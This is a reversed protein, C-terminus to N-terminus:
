NKEEYAAAQTFILKITDTNFKPKRDYTYLGNKEQEVDTLQTYCLGFIRNNDLIAMTLGSLRSLFEEESQPANGYGWGGEAAWAIGGYESVFTYSGYKNVHPCVIAGNKLGDLRARFSEPDQDYDHTDSIDGHGTHFWGSTDIVPRTEDLKSTLDATFAVLKKEDDHSTENFPCWGVIAPHNFDRELTDTWEELFDAWAAPVSEDLGWNPYEGWVMYGLRDCHYLFREEFIKQHLRAGNFGMDMSLKIDNELASDDPATYIGDPYFGQDLVLRQFVRKGNVTMMGNRCEVNRMGFYSGVTDDKMTLTLDYLAGDGPQWLHLEDPKLLLDCKGGYVCGQAAGTYRGDFSCEANLVTKDPADCLAQILLAGQSVLPTYKASKIYNQPTFELWVTQWIGTTRTYMCGYSEPRDSQKGSAQLPSRTDDNVLVRISNVGVTLQRTIEFAFSSYGGRHKGACVENILVEAEYDCAGFRIFVRGELEDKSVTFTRFYSCSSIFGTDNIGSLRSEPCFPVNISKTEKSDADTVYTFDWKGNLSRWSSRCFQPRPHEPRPIHENM